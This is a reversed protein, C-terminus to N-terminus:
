QVTLQPFFIILNLRDNKLGVDGDFVLAKGAVKYTKKDFM